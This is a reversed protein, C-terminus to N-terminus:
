ENISSNKAGKDTSGFTERIGVNNINLKIFYVLTVNCLVRAEAQEYRRKWNNIEHQQLEVLNMLKKIEFEPNIFTNSQKLDM